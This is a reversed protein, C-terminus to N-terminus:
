LKNKKAVKSVKWPNWPDDYSTKHVLEMLYSYTRIVRLFIGTYLPMLPLFLPLLGDVSRYTNGLLIRLMIFQFSNALFYLVYNVLLVYGLNHPMLLLIYTFYVFWKIDFFLNFLINEAVSAFTSGRFNADPRFVDLHKRLRFRVMSKDWRYRQKSLKRFQAPVNTYCIADVQHVVRYGLKRVKLTIDGDLGPGIDWGGVQDLVDRRFAGHAGSIIRLINLESSATRSASITKLYEITQLRTAFSSEENAVRVDGGVAGVRSDLFFPLLIQELAHAELHSDADLHVIFKGKSFRLGTNAASAKGGRTENRIFVDIQRDLHLRDCISKTNDDSGDDIVILEYNQYSQAKLSKVLDEIHKGENKGPVLVSVLPARRFLTHRAQQIRNRNRKKHILFRVILFAELFVYRMMDIIFFPWFYGIFQAYTLSTVFSILGEM